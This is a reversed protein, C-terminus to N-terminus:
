RLDRHGELYTRRPAQVSDRRYRRRSAAGRHRTRVGPGVHRRRRRASPKSSFTADSAAKATAANTGSSAVWSSVPQAHYVVRVGCCRSEGIASLHRDKFCNGTASKATSSRSTRCANWDTSGRNLTKSRAASRATARGPRHPGLRPTGPFRPATADRECFYRSRERRLRRVTETRVRLQQTGHPVADRSRAPRPAAASSSKM